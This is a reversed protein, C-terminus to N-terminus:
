IPGGSSAPQTPPPPGGHEPPAARGREPALGMQLQEDPRAAVRGAKAQQTDMRLAVRSVSQGRRIYWSVLAAPPHTTHPLEGRSRGRTERVGLGPVENKKKERGGGQGGCRM